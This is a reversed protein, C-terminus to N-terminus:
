TTVLRILFPYAAIIFLVFVLLSTPIYLVTTATNTELMETIDARHADIADHTLSRRRADVLEPFWRRVLAAWQERSLPPGGPVLGAAQAKAVYKRVTGRDVGLSKSVVAKKRGAHWHMLIEVIDSVEFARRTM